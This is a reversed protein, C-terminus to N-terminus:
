SVGARAMEKQILEYTSLNDDEDATNAASATGDGSVSGGALEAKQVRQVQEAKIRLDEAHKESATVKAFVDDNLRVAKRYLTNLDPQVGQAADMEALRMMEPMVEDFYPHLPQGQDDTANRFTAIDTEVRQQTSYQQQQLSQQWGTQMQHLQNMIPQMRADLAAGIPDAEPDIQQQEDFTVGYNAAIQLLVQRKQEPTGSRLMNETQVLADVMHPVTTGNQQAYAGWRDELQRYPAIEQSRKTHAAEMGKSMDLMSQQAEAPLARFAEQQKLDWHAPPTLTSAPSAAVSEGTPAPKGGADPSAETAAQGAEGSTPDPSQGSPQQEPPKESSPSASATSSGQPPEGQAEAGGDDTTADAPEAQAADILEAMIEAANDDKPEEAM